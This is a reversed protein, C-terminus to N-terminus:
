SLKAEIVGLMEPATKTGPPYWKRLFDRWAPRGFPENQKM